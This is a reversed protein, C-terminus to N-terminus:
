EGTLSAEEIRLNVCSVRRVDAALYNGTELTILDRPVLQRSAITVHHGDHIVHAEPTALM